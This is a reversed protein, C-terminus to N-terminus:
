IGSSRFSSNPRDNSHVTQNPGLQQAAKTSAGFSYAQTTKDPRSGLERLSSKWTQAQYYGKTGSLPGSKARTGLKIENFTTAIEVNRAFEMAQDCTLPNLTRVWSRIDHKLGRLFM